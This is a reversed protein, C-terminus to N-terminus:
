ASLDRYMQAIMKRTKPRDPTVRLHYRYASWWERSWPRIYMGRPWWWTLMRWTSM